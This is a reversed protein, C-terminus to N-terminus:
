KIINWSKDVKKCNLGINKESKEIKDNVKNLIEANFLIYATDDAIKVEKVSVKGVKLINNKLRGEDEIKDKWKNIVTKMVEKNKIDMNEPEIIEFKAVDEIKNSKAVTFKGYIDKKLKKGSESKINKTIFIYYNQQEKYKKESTIKISTGDENLSLKVPEIEGDERVVIINDENISNKDLKKNFRITWEKDKDVKDGQKLVIEKYNAPNKDIRQGYCIVGSNSTGLYVRGDKGKVMSNIIDNSGIDYLGIFKEEVRKKTYIMNKGIWLILKSDDTKKLGRIENYTKMLGLGENSFRTDEQPLLNEDLKYVKYENKNDKYVFEFEDKENLFINIPEKGDQFRYNITRFNKGDLKNFKIGKRTRTVVYVDKNKDKLLINEDAVEDPYIKSLSIKDVNKDKDIIYINKIGVIYINDNKDVSVSSAFENYEEKNFKVYEEMSNNKVKYLTNYKVLYVEGNYVMSNCYTSFNTRIKNNLIFKDDKLTVDLVVDDDMKYDSKEDYEDSLIRIQSDKDKLVVASNGVYSDVSVEEDQGNIKITFGRTNKIVINDKSYVSFEKSDKAVNYVEKIKDNYIERIKDNDLIWVNYKSDVTIDKIDKGNFLKLREGSPSLYEIKEKSIIWICGNEDIVYDRIDNKLRINKEEGNKSISKLIYQNNGTKDIQTVKFYVTGSNDFKINIIANNYIDKEGEKIVYKEKTDEKGKDSIKLLKYQKKNSEYISLWINKNNDILFEQLKNNNNIDVYKSVNTIKSSLNKTDITLIEYQGNKKYPSVYVYRGDRQINTSCLIENKSFDYKKAKGDKIFYLAMKTLVVTCDEFQKVKLVKEEIDYKNEVKTSRKDYKTYIETAQVNKNGFNIPTLACTFVSAIMLAIGRRYKM